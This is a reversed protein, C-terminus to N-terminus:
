QQVANLQHQDWLFARAVVRVRLYDCLPIIFSDADARPMQHSSSGLYQLDSCVLLFATRVSGFFAAIAALGAPLCVARVFDVQACCTWSRGLDALM